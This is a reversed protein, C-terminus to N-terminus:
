LGGDKITEIIKVLETIKIQSAYPIKPKLYWFDEGKGSPYKVIKYGLGIMIENLEKTGMM